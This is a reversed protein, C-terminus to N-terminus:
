KLASYIAVLVGIATIVSITRNFLKDSHAAKREQKYTEVANIGEVSLSLQFDFVEYVNLKELDSEIKVFGQENLSEVFQWAPIDPFKDVIESRRIGKNLNIHELIQFEINSM